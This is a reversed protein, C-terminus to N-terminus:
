SQDSCIIAKCYHQARWAQGIVVTLCAHECAQVHYLEGVQRVDLM